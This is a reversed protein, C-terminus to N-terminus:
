HKSSLHPGEKKQCFILDRKACYFDSLRTRLFHNHIITDVIIKLCGFIKLMWIYLVEIEKQRERRIVDIVGREEIEIYRECPTVHCKPTYFDNKNYYIHLTITKQDFISGEQSGIKWGVRSMPFFNARPSWTSSQKRKKLHSLSLFAIKKEKEKREVKRGKEKSCLGEGERSM